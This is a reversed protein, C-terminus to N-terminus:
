ADILYDVEFRDPRAALSLSGLPTTTTRTVRTFVLISAFSGLDLTSREDDTPPRTAVREHYGIIRREAVRELTDDDIFDQSVLLERGAENLGDLPHVTMGSAWPEGSDRGRLESPRLV